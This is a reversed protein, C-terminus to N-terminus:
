MIGCPHVISLRHCHKARTPRSKTRTADPPQACSEDLHASTYCYTVIGTRPLRPHLCGLTPATSAQRTEGLQHPLM